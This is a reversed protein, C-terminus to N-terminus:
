LGYKRHNEKRKKDSEYYARMLMDDIKTILVDEDPEDFVLDVVETYYDWQRECDGVHCGYSKAMTDVADAIRLPNNQYLELIYDADSDDLFRVNVTREEKLKIKEQRRKLAEERKKAKLELKRNRKDIKKKNM